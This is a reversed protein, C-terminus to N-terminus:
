SFLRIMLDRKLERVERLTPPPDKFNSALILMPASALFCAGSIIVNGIDEPSSAHIILWFSLIMLITGNGIMAKHTRNKMIKRYQYICGRNGSWCFSFAGDKGATRNRLTSDLDNHDCIFDYLGLRGIRNARNENAADGKGIELNGLSARRIMKGMRTDM